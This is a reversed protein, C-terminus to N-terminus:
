SVQSTLEMNGSEDNSVFLKSLGFDTIKAVGDNEVLVNALLYCCYLLYISIAPFPLCLTSTQYAFCPTFSNVFQHYLLVRQCRLFVICFFSSFFLSPALLTVASSFM